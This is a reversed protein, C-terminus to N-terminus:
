SRSLWTRGIKLAITSVVMTLLLIGVIVPTYFLVVATANQVDTCRRCDIFGAAGQWGFTLAAVPLLWVVVLLLVATLLSNIVRRSVLSVVVAINPIALLLLLWIWVPM